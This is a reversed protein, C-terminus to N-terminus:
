VTADSTVVLEKAADTEYAVYRTHQTIEKKGPITPTEPDKVLSAFTFLTSVTSNTFTLTGTEATVGDTYLARENTSKYPTVVDLTTRRTKPCISTPTLKNVFRMDLNNDITVRFSMMEIANSDLVLAGMSDAMTFPQEAITEGMATPLWSALTSEAEGVVEIICELLGGARAQFIARNVYCPKYQWLVGDLDKGIVFDQLDEALAFTDGSASAGLILELIVDLDTPAPNFAFSGTVFQAVTRQRNTHLSRTGRIGDTHKTRIIQRVNEHLLDIETGSSNLTSGNQVAFKAQAGQASGCTM